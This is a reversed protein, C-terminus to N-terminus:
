PKSFVRTAKTGDSKAMSEGNMQFFFQKCINLKNGGLCYYDLLFLLVGGGGGVGSGDAGETTPHKRYHLVIYICSISLEPVPLCSKFSPFRFRVCAM